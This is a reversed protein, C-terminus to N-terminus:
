QAPADIAADVPEAPAGVPADGAEAAPAAAPAAEDAHAAEEAEAQAAAEAAAARAAEAAVAEQRAKLEDAIARATNADGNIDILERTETGAARQEIINGDADTAVIGTQTPLVMGLATARQALSSTSSVDALDRNLTELQNTLVQNQERLSQIRFSQNTTVGTILMTCVLGAVFLMTIGVIYAITAPDVREHIVRRGRVSLVQQSGAQHQFRRKPKAGGSRHYRQPSRTPTQPERDLTGVGATQPAPESLDRSQYGAQRQPPTMTM